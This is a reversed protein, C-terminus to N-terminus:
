TAREDDFRRIFYKVVTARTVALSSRFWKPREIVIGAFFPVQEGSDECDLRVPWVGGGSIGTMDPPAGVAKRTAVERRELRLLFHGRRDVRALEHARDDALGTMFATLEGSMTGAEPDSRQDRLPYGLVIFMTTAATMPAGGTNELDLMREPGFANAEGPTLRVFGIDVRDDERTTGPSRGTVVTLNKLPEIAGAKTPVFVGTECHDLVHAATVLYSRDGLRTLVGTGVAELDSETRAFFVPVVHKEMRDAAVRLKRLIGTEREVWSEEVERITM